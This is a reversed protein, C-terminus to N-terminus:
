AALSEFISLLEDHVAVYDPILYWKDILIKDTVKVPEWGEYIPLKKYFSIHLVHTNYRITASVTLGDNRRIKMTAGNLNKIEFTNNKM